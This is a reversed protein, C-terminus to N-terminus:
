LFLHPLTLIGVFAIANNLMHFFVGPWISRTRVRLFGLWWGVVLLLVLSGPQVHAIAFLIGSLFIALSAPMVKRFGQLMFGRFFVEEAIPAIFVAVIAIALLIPQALNQNALQQVNTQSALHLVNQVVYAYAIAAAYTVAFGLVIWGLAGLPNFSRFGLARYGISASGAQRGRKRAYYLPAILFVGEGVAEIVGTIVAAIILATQSVPHAPTSTTSSSPLLQLGILIAMVPLQTFLIGVLV